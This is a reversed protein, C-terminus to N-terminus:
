ATRIIAVIAILLAAISVIGNITTWNWEHMRQWASKPMRREIVGQAFNLGRFDIYSDREGPDNDPAVIRGFSHAELQDILQGMQVNSWSPKRLKIETVLKIPTVNTGTQLSASFVILDAILSENETM